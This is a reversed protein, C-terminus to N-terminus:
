RNIKWETRKGSIQKVVFGLRKLKKLHTKATNWAMNTKESIQNSNAWGGTRALHRIIARDFSDIPPLKKM